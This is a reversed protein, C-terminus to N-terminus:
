PTFKREFRQQVPCSLVRGAFTVRRSTPGDTSAGRIATALRFIYATLLLRDQGANKSPTNIRVTECAPKRKRIPVGTLIASYFLGEPSRAM